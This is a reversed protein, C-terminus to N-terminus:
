IRPSRLHGATDLIGAHSVESKAREILHRDDSTLPFAEMSLAKAYTPMSDHRHTRGLRVSGPAVNYQVTYSSSIHSVSHRAAWLPQAAVKQGRSWRAGAISTLCTSAM